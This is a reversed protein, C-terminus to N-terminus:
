EKYAVWKNYLDDTYDMTDNKNKGSCTISNIIGDFMPVIERCSLKKVCEGLTRILVNFIVRKHKEVRTHYADYEREKAQPVNPFSWERYQNPKMSLYFFRIEKCEEVYDRKIESTLVKVFGGKKYVTEKEDELRKHENWYEDHYVVATKWDIKSLNCFGLIEPNRDKNFVIDKCIYRFNERKTKKLPKISLHEQGRFLPTNKTVSLKENYTKEFFTKHIQQRLTSDTKDFDVLAHFHIKETKSGEEFCIVHLINVNAKLWVALKMMLEETHSCRIHLPPM